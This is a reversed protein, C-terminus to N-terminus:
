LAGAQFISHFGNRLQLPSLGQGQSPPRLPLEAEVVHGGGGIREEWRVSM